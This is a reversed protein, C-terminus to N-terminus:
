TLSIHNKFCFISCLLCNFSDITSTQHQGLFPVLIKKNKQAFTLHRLRSELGSDKPISYFDKSALNASMNFFTCNLNRAFHTLQSKLGMVKPLLTQYVVVLSINLTYLKKIAYYNSDQMKLVLIQNCTHMVQIHQVCAIIIFLQSASNSLGDESYKTDVDESYTQM